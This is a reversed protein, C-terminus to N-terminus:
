VYCSVQDQLMNDVCTGSRINFLLIRVAEDVVQEPTMGLTDGFVIAIKNNSSMAQM